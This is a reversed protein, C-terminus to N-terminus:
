GPSAKIKKLDRQLKARESKLGALEKQYKTTAIKIDYELNKIKEELASIKDKKDIAIPQSKEKNSIRGGM